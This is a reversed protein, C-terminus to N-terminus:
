AIKGKQMWQGLLTKTCHQCFDLRLREGDGFVSGYGAVRDISLFEQFEPNDLEARRGCRDCTKSSLALVENKSFQQM